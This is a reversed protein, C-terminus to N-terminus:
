RYVSINRPATHTVEPEKSGIYFNNRVTTLTTHLSVSAERVSLPFNVHISLYVVNM